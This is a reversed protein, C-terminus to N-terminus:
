QLIAQADMVSNFSKTYFDIVSYTTNESHKVASGGEWCNVLM